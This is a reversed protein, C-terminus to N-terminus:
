EDIFHNEGTEYNLLTAKLVNIMDQKFSEPSLIAIKDRHWLLEQKLDYTPRLYLEFDTYDDNEAVISQSSHIPVDKLYLNQPFFARIRILIPEYQRIIGFCHAFYNDPILLEKAKKSLKVKEDLVQLNCIRELALSMYCEEDALKGVVYWRQKFLRVFVPAFRFERKNNKFHSSYLFSLCQKNDIADIITQLLETAPPAKELMVKDHNKMQRGLNALRFSSLIWQQLEQNELDEPNEIKYLNGNRKDCKIGISFMTEAGRRYRNFTRELIENGSTNASSYKWKNQIEKFTMPRMMLSDVLWIYFRYKFIM